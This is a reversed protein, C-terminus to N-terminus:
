LYILNELNVNCQWRSSCGSVYNGLFSPYAAREEGRYLNKSGAVLNTRDPRTPLAVISIIRVDHTRIGYLNLSKKSEM